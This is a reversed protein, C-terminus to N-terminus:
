LVRIGGIFEPCSVEDKPSDQGDRRGGPGRRVFIASIVPMQNLAIHTCKAQAL